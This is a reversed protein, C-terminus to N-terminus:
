IEEIDVKLATGLYFCEYMFFPQSAVLKRVIKIGTFGEIMALTDNGRKIGLLGITFYSESYLVIWNIIHFPKIQSYIGFFTGILEISPSIHIGMNTSLLYFFYIIYWINLDISLYASVAILCFLNLNESDSMKQEFNNKISKFHKLDFNGAVLRKAKRLSVGGLLGYKDLEVVAEKFIVEAEERTQVESLRQEIDDFLLEVEDAEQQTLKVTHKKGLGSFEVEFEVLENDTSVKGVVSSFSSLLIIAVAIISGILIKQKM